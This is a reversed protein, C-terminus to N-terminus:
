ERGIAMFQGTVTQQNDHRQDMLRLVTNIHTEDGSAYAAEIACSLVETALAYDAQAEELVLSDTRGSSYADLAAQLDASDSLAAAMAVAAGEIADREEKMWALERGARVAATQLISIAMDLQIKVTPDQITPAVKSTLEACVSSILQETTPRSIM